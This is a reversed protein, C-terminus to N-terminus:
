HTRTHALFLPVRTYYCSSSWARNFYQQSVVVHNLWVLFFYEELVRDCRTSKKRGEKRETVCERGLM